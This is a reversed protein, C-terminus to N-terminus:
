FAIQNSYYDNKSSELRQMGLSELIPLGASLVDSALAEANVLPVLWEPLAGRGKPVALVSFGAKAAPNETGDQHPMWVAKKLRLWADKMGAGVLIERVRAPEVDRIKLLNVKAPPQITEDPFLANWANVGRVSMQTWPNKYTEPEKYDGPKAYDESGAILSETVEREYDALLGLVKFVRPPRDPSLVQDRLIDQFFKRAKAPVTSKRMAMGKVDMKPEKLVRGEQAIILQAYHKKGDTLMIRKIVYENKMAIIPRKNEPIRMGKTMESYSEKIVQTLIWIIVGIASARAQLDGDDDLGGHERAWGVWRDLTIFNSDTDAAIVSRRVLEESAASRDTRVHPHFVAWRLLGWLEELAPAQEATPHESDVYGLEGSCLSRALEAARPCDRLFGYLDCRWAAAMYQEPGLNRLARAVRKRDAGTAASLRDAVRDLPPPSAKRLGPPLGVFSRASHAILDLAEDTGQPLGNGELFMEFTLMSHKVILVGTYTVSPGTRKNFFFSRAQGSAGYLSNNMIKVVKQNRDANDHLTRDEDNVHELMTKKAVKRLRLLEQIVNTLIPEGQDHPQYMTGYGTLTAKEKELFNLVKLVDADETTHDYDNDIVAPRGRGGAEAAERTVRAVAEVWEEPSAWSPRLLEAAASAESQWRQMFAGKAM